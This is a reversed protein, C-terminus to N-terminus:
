FPEIKEHEEVKIIRRKVPDYTVKEITPSSESIRFYELNGNELWREKGLNGGNVVELDIVEQKGLDILYQEFSFEIGSFLMVFRGNRSTSLIAYQEYMERHIFNIEEMLNDLNVVIIKLPCNGYYICSNQGEVHEIIISLFLVKKGEELFIADAFYGKKSWIEKPEETNLVDFAYVTLEAGSERGILVRDYKDSVDIVFDFKGREISYLDEDITIPDKVPKLQFPHPTPTPIPTPSPSIAFVLRIDSLSLALNGNGELEGSVVYRCIKCEAGMKVKSLDSLEGPVVKM